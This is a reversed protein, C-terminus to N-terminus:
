LLLRLPTNEIRRAIEKEVARVIQCARADSFGFVFGVEQHTFGYFHHLLFIARTGKPQDKILAEIEAFHELREFQKENLDRHEILGLSKLYEFYPIDKKTRSCWGNERFFDVVAQSASQNKGLHINECYRQAFDEADEVRMGALRGQKKAWAWIRRYDAKKKM